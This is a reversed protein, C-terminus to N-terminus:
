LDEAINKGGILFQKPALDQVSKVSPLFKCVQLYFIILLNWVDKNFLAFGNREQLCHHVFHAFKRTNPQLNYLSRLLQSHEVNYGSAFSITCVIDTSIHHAKIIPLSNKNSLWIKVNKWKENERFKQAYTNVFFECSALSNPRKYSFDKFIHM